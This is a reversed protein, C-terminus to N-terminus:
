KDMHQLLAGIAGFYGEHELFLARNEGKSWYEVAYALQRMANVNNRLYNGVFLIKKVKSIRACLLAISGVNNTVTILCAKALDANTAAERKKEIHMNGFSSAVLTGPLSFQEYSGGYIDRVLKDVQLRM